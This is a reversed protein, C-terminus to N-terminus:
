TWQGGMLSCMYGRTLGPNLVSVARLCIAALLLNQPLLLLRHSLPLAGDTPTGVPTPMPIAQVSTALGARVVCCEGFRWKHAALLLALLCASASTAHM